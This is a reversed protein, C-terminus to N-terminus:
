QIRWDKREPTPGALLYARYSRRDFEKKLRPSPHIGSVMKEPQGERSKLWEDEKKKGAQDGTKSSAEGLLRHIEADEPAYQEADRFYRLAVKYKGSQWMSVGLNFSFVPDTTNAQYARDFSVIAEQWGLTRRVDRLELLLRDVAAQLEDRM